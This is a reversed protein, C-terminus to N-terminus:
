STPAVPRGRHRYDLRPGEALPDSTLVLTLRLLDPSLGWHALRPLTSDAMAMHAPAIQLTM